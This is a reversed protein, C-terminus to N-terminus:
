ALRNDVNPSLFFSCVPRRRVVAVVAVPVVPLPPEEVGVAVVVVADADSDVAHWTRTTAAAKTRM